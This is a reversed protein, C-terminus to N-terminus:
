SMPIDGGDKLLRKVEHISVKMSPTRPLEPLLQIRTPCHYAVVRERVYLLLDAECLSSGPLTEAVAQPVEGLREDQMGVVCAHRVEPHSEIVAEIDTPLIKFGGRNIAADARGRLYLFGDEDIVALDSTRVWEDFDLKEGRVELLGQEGRSLVKGSEPDTVRLELGDLARGVAGQKSEGYHQYDAMSWRTIAGAFETAGYSDLIPIGYRTQFDRKLDTPLPASGSGISALSRFSDVPIDADYIMRLAAPSLTVTKPRHTELARRWERVSFKDLLCFSRGNALSNISFYIGGIHVLSGSVIAISSKLRIPGADTVEVGSLISNVFRRRSLPIRKAPGTTGSSLMLIATQEQEPTPAQTTIRGVVLIQESGMSIHAKRGEPILMELSNAHWDDELAIIASVGLSEIDANIKIASQHPNIPVLCFNSTVMALVTSVCAPNNRLVVAIPSGQPIGAEMVARIIGAATNRIEGYSYWRQMFEIAGKDPDVSFISNM